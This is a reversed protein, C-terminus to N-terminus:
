QKNRTIPLISQKLFLAQDETLTLLDGYKAILKRNNIMAEIPKIAIHTLQPEVQKVAKALKM